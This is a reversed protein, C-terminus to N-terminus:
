NDYENYENRATVRGCYVCEYHATFDGGVKGVWEGENLILDENTIQDLNAQPLPTKCYLCNSLFIDNDARYNKCKKITTKM